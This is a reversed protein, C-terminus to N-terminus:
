HARNTEDAIEKLELAAFNYPAWPGTLEYQFGRPAFRAELETLAARFCGEADDDVLYAGNLSMAAPRGHVQCPQLPNEVAQRSCEALTHHSEQACAAALGQAMNQAAQALKKRLFYGAGQPARATAERLPQLGEASSAVWEALTKQDYFLKVGWETAGELRQLGRDVADYHQALVERVRDETSYLTCFKFPILTYGALLAALVKQHAVIRARVWDTDELRVKLAAAGFESLPVPSVVALLDRHAVTSVPVQPAIGEAPLAEIARGGRPRAIAYVYYALERGNEHALVQM